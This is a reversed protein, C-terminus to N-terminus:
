NGFDKTGNNQKPLILSILNYRMHESYHMYSLQHQLLFKRYDCELSFILGYFFLPLVETM